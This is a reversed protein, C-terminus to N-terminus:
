NTQKGTNNPCYAPDAATHEAADDSTHDIFFDVAFSDFFEKQRGHYQDKQDTGHIYVLIQKGLDASRIVPLTTSCIM